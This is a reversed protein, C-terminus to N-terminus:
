MLCAQYDHLECEGAMGFKMRDLYHNAIESDLVQLGSMLERATTAASEVAVLAREKAQSSEEVLRQKMFDAKENMKVSVNTLM